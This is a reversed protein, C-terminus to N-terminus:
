VENHILIRNLGRLVLNPRVFIPAKLNSEFFHADGGTVVMNINGLIKESANRFGEIEHLIAEKSGLLMCAETSKGPFNLTGEVKESLNPLNETQDSMAKLRMKLGPSIVGGQFIGDSDVLDITLCTGFDIVLSGDPCLDWAGVAAAVRDFGLTNITEYDLGIPLKTKRDLFLPNVGILKEQIENELRVASVIIKKFNNAEMVLDDLSNWYNFKILQNGNFEASKIRTNGIDIALTNM